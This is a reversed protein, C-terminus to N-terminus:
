RGQTQKAYKAQEKKLLRGTSEAIEYNQRSELIKHRVSFLQHLRGNCKTETGAQSCPDLQNSIYLTGTAFFVHSSFICLISVIGQIVPHEANDSDRLIVWFEAIIFAYYLVVISNRMVQLTKGAISLYNFKVWPAALAPWLPQSILSGTFKSRRYKFGDDPNKKHEALKTYYDRNDEINLNILLITMVYWFIIVVISSAVIRPMPGDSIHTVLLLAAFSIAYSIGAIATSYPSSPIKTVKSFPAIINRDGSQIKDYNDMVLNQIKINDYNNTMACMATLASAVFIAGVSAIVRCLTSFDLQSSVRYDHIVSFTNVVGEYISLTATIHFCVGSAYEVMPNMTAAHKADKSKDDSLTCAIVMAVIVALAAAPIAFDTPGSMDSASLITVGTPITTVAVTCLSSVALLTLSFYNNFTLRSRIELAEKAYRSHTAFSAL